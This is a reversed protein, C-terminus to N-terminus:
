KASNFFATPKSGTLPKMMLVSPVDVNFSMISSPLQSSPKKIKKRCWQCSAVATSARTIFPRQCSCRLIVLGKNIEIKGIAMLFSWVKTVDVPNSNSFKINYALTITALEEKSVKRHFDKNDPTLIRYMKILIYVANETDKTAIWSIAGLKTAKDFKFDDSKRRIFSEGLGKFSGSFYIEFLKESAGLDALLRLSALNQHSIENKKKFIVGSMVQPIRQFDFRNKLM